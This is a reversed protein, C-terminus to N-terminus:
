MQRCAKLLSLSINPDTSPGPLCRRHQCDGHDCRVGYVIKHNGVLHINVEGLVQKYIHQRLELPLKSILQSQSQNLTRQTPRAAELPLTLARQRPPPVQPLPPGRARNTGSALKIEIVGLRWLCLGCCCALIEFIDVIFAVPKSWTARLRERM